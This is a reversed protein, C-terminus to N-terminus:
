EYDELADSVSLHEPAVDFPNLECSNHYTQSGYRIDSMDVGFKGALLSCSELLTTIDTISVGSYPQRSVELVVHYVRRDGEWERVISWPTYHLMDEYVSDGPSIDTDPEGEYDPIRIKESMFRVMEDHSFGRDIKITFYTVFYTSSM